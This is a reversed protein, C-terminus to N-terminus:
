ATRRMKSKQKFKREDEVMKNYELEEMVCAAGNMIVIVMTKGCCNFKSIVSYNEECVVNEGEKLYFSCDFKM